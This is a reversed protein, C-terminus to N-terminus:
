TKKRRAHAVIISSFVLACIAILSSAAVSVHQVNMKLYQNNMYHQLLYLHKDPYQGFLLYSEKYIRFYYMLLFLLAFNIENRIMPLRIHLHLRLKSCGELSAAELVESPINSLAIYMVVAAPGSCKWWYLSLLALLSVPWPSLIDLQFASIWLSVAAVSPILIPVLLLIIGVTAIRPSECLLWAIVSSVISAGVICLTGVIILNRIGLLFYENQWVDIFNDFGIVTDEFSSEFISYKFTMGLPILYFVVFGAIPVLGIASMRWRQHLHMNM